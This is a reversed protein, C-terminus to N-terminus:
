LVTRHNKGLWNMLPFAASVPLSTEEADLEYQLINM